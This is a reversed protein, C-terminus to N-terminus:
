SLSLKARPSKGSVNWATYRWTASVGGGVPVHVPQGEGRRLQMDVDGRQRRVPEERGAQDDGDLEDGLFRWRNEVVPLSSSSVQSGGRGGRFVFLRAFSTKDLESHTIRQVRM